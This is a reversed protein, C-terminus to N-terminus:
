WTAICVFHSWPTEATSQLALVWSFTVVPSMHQRCNGPVQATWSGVQPWERCYNLMFKDWVQVSSLGWRWKLLHLIFNKLLALLNRIESGSCESRLILTLGNSFAKFFGMLSIHLCMYCFWAWWQATLTKLSWFGPLSRHACLFCSFKLYKRPAKIGRVSYSYSNYLTHYRERKKGCPINHKLSNLIFLVLAPNKKKYHLSELRNWQRGKVRPKWISITKRKKEPPWLPGSHLLIPRSIKSETTQRWREHILGYSLWLKFKLPAFSLHLLCVWVLM